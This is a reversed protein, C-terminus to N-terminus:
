RGTLDQTHLIRSAHHGGERTLHFQNERRDFNVGSHVLREIAAPGDEIISQVAQPDCLGDGANITDNIHADFSDDAATVSAIGGQAYATNSDHTQRKTLLLVKGHEALTLAAHMGALGTGIVLYDTDIIM